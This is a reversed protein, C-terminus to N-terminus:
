WRSYFPCRWVMKQKGDLVTYHHVKYDADNIGISCVLKTHKKLEFENNQNQLEKM